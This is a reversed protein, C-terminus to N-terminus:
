PAPQSRLRYFQTSSDLPPLELRLVGPSGYEFM